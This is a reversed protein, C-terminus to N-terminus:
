HIRDPRTGAGTEESDAGAKEANGLQRLGTILEGLETDELGDIFRDLTGDNNELSFSKPILSAVVRFYSSPDKKRAAQMVEKGNEQWDELVDQCFANSFKHRAGVTRGKPNRVEGPQIPPMLNAKSRARAAEKARLAEKLSPPKRSMNDDWGMIM